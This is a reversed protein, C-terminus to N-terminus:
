QAGADQGALRRAVATIVAENRSTGVDRSAAAAFGTAFEEPLVSAIDRRTADILGPVAKVDGPVIKATHILVWGQGGPVVQVTGAPTSLFAQIMPPVQPQRVVDLRRGQLPQPAALGQAAVAANFDMGKKVAAVVADAKGRAAQLAKERAAAATIIPRIEALPQPAQPLVQMTEIVALKGGGLDEVAAGDGPEHRFTKAALLGLDVSPPTTVGAAYGEKTVPAQQQITLGHEKALDAFSKGGEVGDEIKAVLDSIAANLKQERIDLEIAPRAQALTKGATGLQDVRVIHWGFATKIPATITGVPAAFAADAVAKSTAKAFDAQNQMGLALDSVAFGAIRGAAKEFGESASAAAIAKAKAEDPVVVQQLKRTPAAGYKGPNATYAAAIEADPIVIKAAIAARDIMAYRFARREPLTFNAKNDNYYKTIEAETPAATAALPVLAVGGVHTDVLLRAYAAAVGDPVGLAATVPTVLQRRVIDGGISDRLQRDTLRQQSLINRYTAEDFKGGVQFAAIGGIVGGVARDSAVIAHRVGFQEVATQGILTEAIVSVGGERAAQAQTLTPNKERANRIARDFAALLDAETVTKSGVKAVAGSPAGGGGFPDGVGTIAFAVLILGLLALVPWSNLWKRFFIIM